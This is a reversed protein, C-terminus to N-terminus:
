AIITNRISEIKQETILARKEDCVEGRLLDALRQATNLMLEFIVQGDIESPLCLFMVLGNTAFNDMLKMDFSGPEMMNALSFLAQERQMEGIGYHHFIDLAGFQMDLQTLADLIAEGSFVENGRPIVHLTIIQQKATNATEQLHNAHPSMTPSQAPFLEASAQPLDSKEHIEQQSAVDDVEVKQESVAEPQEQKSRSISQNLGALVASYDIEKDPTSAIKLEAVDDLAPGQLITQQRQQKRSQFTGWIYIGAVIGIGIVLLFLRLDNM